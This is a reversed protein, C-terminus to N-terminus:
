AVALDRITNAVLLALTAPDLGDTNWLVNRTDNNEVYLEAERDGVDGVTVLYHEGDFHQIHGRSNHLGPKAQWGAGLHHAAASAISFVSLDHKPGTRHPDHADAPPPTDSRLAENFLATAALVSYKVTRVDLLTPTAGTAFTRNMNQIHEHAHDCAYSTDIWFGPIERDRGSSNGAEAYATMQNMARSLDCLTDATPNVVFPTLAARAATTLEVPHAPNM